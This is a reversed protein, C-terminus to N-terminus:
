DNGVTLDAAKAAPDREAALFLLLNM